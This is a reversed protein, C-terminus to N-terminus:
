KWGYNYPVNRYKKGIADAIVVPIFGEFYKSDPTKADIMYHDIDTETYSSRLQIIKKIRIIIGRHGFHLKDGIRFKAVVKGLSLEAETNERIQENHGTPMGPFNLQKDFKKGDGDLLIVPILGGFAKGDRTHGVFKYHNTTLDEDHPRTNFSNYIMKIQLTFDEITVTDEAHFKANVPGLLELGPESEEGAENIMKKIQEKLKLKSEDLPGNFMDLQGTKEVWNDQLHFAKGDEFEGTFTYGPPFAHTVKGEKGIYTKLKAVFDFSPYAKISRANNDCNQWSKQTVTFTDGVRFRIVNEDLKANNKDFQSLRARFIARDAREKNYKSGMKKQLIKHAKDRSTEEHDVSMAADDFKNDENNTKKALSKDAKTAQIYKNYFRKDLTKDYTVCNSCVGTKDMYEADGSYLRSACKPCYGEAENLPRDKGNDFFKEKCEPCIGHSATPLKASLPSGIAKGNRTRRLCWACQGELPQEEEKGIMEGVIEKLFEKFELREM